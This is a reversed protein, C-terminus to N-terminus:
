KTTEKKNKSWLTKWNDNPLAKTDGRLMNEWEHLHPASLEGWKEMADWSYRRNTKWFINNIFVAANRASLYVALFIIVFIALVIWIYRM